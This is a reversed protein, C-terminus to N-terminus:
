VKQFLLCQFYSCPLYLPFSDRTHYRFVEQLTYYLFSLHCKQSLQLLHSSHANMQTRHYLILSIYISDYHFFCDSSTLPFSQTVLAYRNELFINLIILSSPHPSYFLLFFLYSLSSILYYCPSPFFNLLLLFSYFLTM